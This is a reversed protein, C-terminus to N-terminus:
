PKMEGVRHQDTCDRVPCMGGPCDPSCTCPALPRGCDMCTNHDRYTEGLERWADLWAYWRFWNDIDARNRLVTM